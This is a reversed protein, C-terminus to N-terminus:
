IRLCITHLSGNTSNSWSECINPCAHIKDDGLPKEKITNDANILVQKTDPATSDPLNLLHGLSLGWKQSAQFIYVHCCVCIPLLILQGVLSTCGMLDGGSFPLSSYRPGDPFTVGLQFRLYTKLYLLNNRLLLFSGHLPMARLSAHISWPIFASAAPVPWALKTPWM